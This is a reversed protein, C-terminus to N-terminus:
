GGRRKRGFQEMVDAALLELLGNGSVDREDLSEGVDVAAATGHALDAGEGEFVEDGGANVYNIVDLADAATVFGDGTVDYYPPEDTFRPPLAGAGFANLYNIVELADEAVSHTDGTVDFRRDSNHWASFLNRSASMGVLLIPSAGINGILTAAGTALDISYLRSWEGDTTLAAYGLNAGSPLTQIDFASYEDHPDIGLNGVTFLTGSDPSPTAPPVNAGGQRSLVNLYTDVNYLTTTTAGAVNNTHAIGTPRTYYLYYVDDIDYAVKPDHTSGSADAEFRINEAFDNAVRLEDTVPNFDTGFSTAAEFNFGFREGRQTAVGTVLDITYLRVLRGVAYLEGTAPRFDIGLITDGNVIGTVPVTWLILEPARCDFMLLTNDLDLGVMTADSLGFHHEPDQAVFNTGGSVTGTVKAVSSRQGRTVNRFAFFVWTEDPDFLGDGDADGVGFTVNFDDATNNPTGNDDRVVVDSIPETGLNTLVYAEEVMSGITLFKGPLVDHDTSNTLKNVALPPVVAMGRLLSPDSGINGILTAAGTALDISYLRSRLGDTTLSAFGLNTGDPLTEIDFTTYIRSNDDTPNIGLPGITVMEGSNPSPFGPPVNVGGQRFLANTYVDIGFLTTTTAGKFNNTYAAGGADQNFCCNPDGEEYTLRESTQRQLAPDSLKVRFNQDFDGTIRLEDTVPNIDFGFTFGPQLDFPFTGRLKAVGTVPDISYLRDGSGLGMIEGTAPRLDIGDISDGGVLGTIPQSSILTEPADSEFRVLENNATVGLM